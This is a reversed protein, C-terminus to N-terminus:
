ILCFTVKLKILIIPKPQLCNSIGNFAFLAFDFQNHAINTFNTMLSDM